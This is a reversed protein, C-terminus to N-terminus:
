SLDNENPFFLLGMFTKCRALASPQVHIRHKDNRKVLWEYLCWVGVLFGAVYFFLFYFLFILVYALTDFSFTNSIKILLRQFGATQKFFPM